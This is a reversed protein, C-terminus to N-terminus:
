ISGYPGWQINDPAPQTPAAGPSPATIAIQVFKDMITDLSTALTKAIETSLDYLFKNEQRRPTPESMVTYDGIYRSYFEKKEQIEEPTGENLEIYFAKLFANYVGRAVSEKYDTIAIPETTIYPFIRSM